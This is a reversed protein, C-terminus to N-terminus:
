IYKLSAIYLLFFFIHKFIMKFKNELNQLLPIQKTCLYAYKQAKGGMKRSM